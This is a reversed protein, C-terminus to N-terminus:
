SKPPKFYALLAFCTQLLTLFVVLNVVGKYHVWPSSYDRIKRRLSVFENTLRVDEYSLRSLIRPLKEMDNDSNARVIGERELLKADRATQIIDSMVKIYSGVERRNKGVQQQQHSLEYTKLNALITEANDDAFLVPLYLYAWPWLHYSTFRIRRAGGSKLKKIRIGARLLETASPFIRKRDKASSSLGIADLLLRIRGETSSAGEGDGDGDGDGDDIEIPFMREDDGVDEDNAELDIQDDDVVKRESSPRDLPEALGIVMNQLGHLIDSSQHRHEMLIHENGKGMVREVLSLGRDRKLAPSVLVEYLVKKCLSTRPADWKANKIVEQFFTQKMLENLIVLPIQNGVYFMAEIWKKVDKKNIKPGFIPDNDAYGLQNSCGLILLALQLFFCGDRIMMLRFSSETGSLKETYIEKAEQEVNRIASTYIEKIIEQDLSPDKELSKKLVHEWAKVKTAEVSPQDVRYVPGFRPHSDELKVLVKVANAVPTPDGTTPHGSEETAGTSAGSREESESVSTPIRRIGRAFKHTSEVLPALESKSPKKQMSRISHM